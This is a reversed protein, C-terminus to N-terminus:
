IIFIENDEYFFKGFGHRKAKYFEGDYKIDKNKYYLVGRGHPKKDFLDGKYYDGNEYVYEGYSKNGCCPLCGM